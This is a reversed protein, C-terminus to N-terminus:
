ELDECELDKQEYFPMAKDNLSLTSMWMPLDIHRDYRVAEEVVNPHM